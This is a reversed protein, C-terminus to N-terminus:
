RKKYQCPKLTLSNKITAQRAVNRFKKFYFLVFPTNKTDETLLSFGYGGLRRSWKKHNEIRSKVEAVILKGGPKTIRNAELVFEGVQAAMLSLCFISVDVSGDELPTKRIDCAVM